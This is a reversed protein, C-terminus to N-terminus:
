VYAGTTKKMFQVREFEQRLAQDDRIKGKFDAISEFGNKDMWVEMEELITGIYDVKNKYLTSCIHTASAGALIEKIVAEADHIGTNASIDASIQDSLLAVWRLSISMEEPSSFVNGSFVQMENLSIDPRYYRNFMVVGDAGAEDLRKIMKTLNTFFYGIKVGVPISVKSKVASLIEVYTDEIEESSSEESMPPIFINLEIGDAGAEELDKAFDTWSENTAANISAIVPIEVESKAEKLLEIYQDVGHSKAINNVFELAEPYWFYMDSQDMLKGRDAMIQEEFLSKLVITGAGAEACKRINDISSTLHSSSVILPNQLALGMYKTSLDM